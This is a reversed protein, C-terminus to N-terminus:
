NHCLYHIYGFCDIVNTHIIRLDISIQRAGAESHVIASDINTGSAMMLEFLGGSSVRLKVVLSLRM